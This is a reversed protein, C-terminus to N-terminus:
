RDHALIRRAELRDERGLVRPQDPQGPHDAAVWGIGLVGDLGRDLPCKAVM